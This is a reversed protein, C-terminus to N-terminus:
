LEFYNQKTQQEVLFTTAKRHKWAAAAAAMNNATGRAQGVDVLENVIPSSHLALNSSLPM